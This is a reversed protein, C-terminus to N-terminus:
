NEIGAEAPYNSLPSELSSVDLGLEKSIQIPRKLIIQNLLNLIGWIPM